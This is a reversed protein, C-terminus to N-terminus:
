VNLVGELSRSHFLFGEYKAIKIAAKILEETEKKSIIQSIMIPKMFSLVSIGGSHKANGSTPLVHPPGACYDIAASPSNISIAGGNNILNLINDSNSVWLSIHEPAIDSIIRAGDELSKVKVLYIDAMNSTYYQELYKYINILTDNSYSIIAITSLPGHEAQAIADIAVLEPNAKEDALVILETPGEIGDISIESSIIQKAAQIYANGPGFLKDVKRVRETGYGVAAIGAIGSVYLIEDINTIDSIYSIIPDLHFGRPPTILVKEKVKAVNAASTLMLLTSPYVNKGGPVYLGVREISSWKVGFRFGNRISYVDRPRLLENFSLLQEYIVKISEVIDSPLNAKARIESGKIYKGEKGELERTVDFVEKDGGKKVRNLYPRVKEIFNELSIENRKIDHSFM